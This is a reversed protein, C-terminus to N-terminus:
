NLFVTLSSWGRGLQFIVLLRNCLSGFALANGVTHQSINISKGFMVPGRLCRTWWLVVRGKVLCSGSFCWMDTRLLVDEWLFSLKWLFMMYCLQTGLSTLFEWKVGSNHWSSAIKLPFLLLELHLFLCTSCSCLASREWQSLLNWFPLLCLM